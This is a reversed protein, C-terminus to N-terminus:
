AHVEGGLYARIVTEDQSIERPTGEAIKQGHDLVIIRDALSMVVKMNHEVLVVSIGRSRITSILDCLATSEQPSFGAGPEDLLLVKPRTMLARAIEVRRREQLSLKKISEQEKGGVGLWDLIEMAKEKLQQEAKKWHVTRGAIHFFGKEAYMHGGILVNEIVTLDDLLRITQFSRAIGLKAMRWAEPTVVQETGVRLQGNTPRQLGTLVNLLTSKGAGNPGIVGLIEDPEVRLDVDKVAWLGGFRVSVQRATILSESM